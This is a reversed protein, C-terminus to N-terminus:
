RETGYKEAEIRDDGSWGGVVIVMGVVVVEIVM